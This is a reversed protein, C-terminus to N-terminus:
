AASTLKKNIKSVYLREYPSSTKQCQEIMDDVSQGDHIQESMKQHLTERDLSKRGPMQSVKFRYGSTNLWGTNEGNIRHYTNKIRQEIDKKKKQIASEQVKLDALKELEVDFIPDHELVEQDQFKPCDENVNCYDCLPHFGSCYQVDNLTINGSLIEKKENWIREAVQLCANLMDKDPVYPGFPKVQTMSISLVWAEIDIQDPTDPMNIGFLRYVAEPFNVGSFGTTANESFLGFCPKNWCEKLLSVQGYVQAEYSAYLNDPILENSKLEIIRVAPKQGGWVLTFDLHAKIPIGNYEISIEFQPIMKVGTAMIANQIGYEQWHGRQLVIQKELVAILDKQNLGLVDNYHLHQILGAKEAVASRLCEMGKGIDSLGIYRSRDGLQSATDEHTHKLIGMTLFQLLGDKKNEHQM